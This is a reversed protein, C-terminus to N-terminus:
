PSYKLYVVIKLLACDITVIKPAFQFQLKLYKLIKSFTEILIKM